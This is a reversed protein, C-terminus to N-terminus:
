ITNQLLIVSAVVTHQPWVFYRAFTYHRYLCLVRYAHFCLFHVKDMTSKWNWHARSPMKLAGKLEFGSRSKLRVARQLGILWMTGGFRDRSRGASKAILTTALCCGLISLKIFISHLKNYIGAMGSKSSVKAVALIRTKARHAHVRATAHMHESEREGFIVVVVFWVPHVAISSQLLVSSDSHSM